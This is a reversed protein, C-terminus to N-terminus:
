PQHLRERQQLRQNTPPAYQDKASGIASSKDRVKPRESVRDRRPRAIVARHLSKASKRDLASAVPNYYLFCCTSAWLWLRHDSRCPCSLICGDHVHMANASYKHKLQHRANTSYNHARGLAVSKALSSYLVNYVLIVCWAHRNRKVQMCEISGYFHM